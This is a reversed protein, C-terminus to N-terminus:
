QSGFNPLEKKVKEYLEGVPIMDKGSRDQRSCADKVIDRSFLGMQCARLVGLMKPTDRDCIDNHLIYIDTGYIGMSDLNLIVGIGGMGNDPDTTTDSMIEMLANMAGPNGDCMKTIASIGTDTLTIREKNEMM